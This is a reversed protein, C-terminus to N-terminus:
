KRKKKRWWLVENLGVAREIALHINGCINEEGVISPINSKELSARVNDNVGSLTIHIKEKTSNKCFTKLSKVGTSDSLPM